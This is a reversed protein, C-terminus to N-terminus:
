LDYNKHLNTVLKLLYEDFISCAATRRMDIYSIM